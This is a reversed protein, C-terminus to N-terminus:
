EDIEDNLIAAVITHVGKFGFLDNPSCKFLECLQLIQKPNPTAKGTEWKWYAGQTIKMAQSVDRQTMKLSERFEKLRLVDM